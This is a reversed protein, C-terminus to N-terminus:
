RLFGRTPQRTDPPKLRRASLPGAFLNCLCSAFVFVPAVLAADRCNDQQPKPKGACELPSTGRVSCAHHRGSRLRCPRPTAFSTTLGNVPSIAERKLLAETRALVACVSLEWPRVSCANSVKISMSDPEFGRTARLGPLWAPAPELSQEVAAIMM